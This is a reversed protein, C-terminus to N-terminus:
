SVMVIQTRAFIIIFPLREVSVMLTTKQSGGCISGCDYQTGQCTSDCGLYGNFAMTTTGGSCYGCDDVVAEGGIVSSCDKDPVLTSEM